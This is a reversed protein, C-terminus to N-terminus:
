LVQRRAEGARESTGHNFIWTEYGETKGWGIDLEYHTHNGGYFDYGSKKNHFVIVNMTPYVDRLKSVTSQTFNSEIPHQNVLDEIGDVLKLLADAITVVVRAIAVADVLVQLQRKDEAHRTTNVLHDYNPVAATAPHHFHTLPAALATCIIALLVKLVPPKFHM